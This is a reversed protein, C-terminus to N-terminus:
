RVRELAFTAMEEYRAGLPGVHSRYLVVSDVTWGVGVPAVGEVLARVDQPPRIRSLTLHARFPRDEDPLGAADIASEVRAALAGMRESGEAFAVWLVNARSPKPFAGLGGLRVRFREGLDEQDLAALVRDYGLDDLDGLFQLTLHWNHPQVTRGPLPRGRESLRAALAHRADDTLPAAVFFRGVM